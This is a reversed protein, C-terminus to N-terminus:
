VSCAVHLGADQTRSVSLLQRSIVPQRSRASPSGTRRFGIPRHLSGIQQVGDASRCATSHEHHRMPNMRLVAWPNRIGSQPSRSRRDQAVGSCRTPERSCRNTWPSICRVRRARGELNQRPRQSCDVRAAGLPVAPQTCSAAVACPSAFISCHQLAYNAVSRVISFHPHQTTERPIICAHGLLSETRGRPAGGDGPGVWGLLLILLPPVPRVLPKRSSRRRVITDGLGTAKKEEHFM